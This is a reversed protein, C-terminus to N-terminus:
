YLLLLPNFISVKRMTLYGSFFKLGGSKSDNPLLTYKYNANCVWYNGDKDETMSRIGFDGGGPTETLQSEYMWSIEKGDFLYVGIYATGFWVNGKRDKYVSYISYPNVSSNPYKMYFADEMKNKPFKLHYINKGDFRYPGRRNWGIRFWLDEPESKWENQSEKSDVVPLNSFKEGNYKYVGEPTDFYLNGVNDEQVSIIRYIKLGDDSTFLILNEEDYSYVGKEESAFWFNDRKDQYIITAKSDLEM